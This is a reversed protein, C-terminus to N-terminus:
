PGCDEILREVAVLRGCVSASAVAAFAPAAVDVAAAVVVAAVAACRLEQRCHPFCGSSSGEGLVAAVESLVADCM